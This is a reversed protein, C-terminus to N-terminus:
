APVGKSRSEDAKHPSPPITSEQELERELEEVVDGALVHEIEDADRDVHSPAIDAYRILYLEWLRHNRLIRRSERRGTETLKLTNPGIQSVLGLRSGRAILRDLHRRSWFRKAHVDAIPIAVEAALDEECEALARLLNQHAVRHSLSWRRYVGALVGRHPSFIMSFAFVVGTSIVIIAGTPLRPLLASLVSGMWGSFAGIGGAIVTMLLLSDTWFRAAAAPIILLAVIMILGVAQLGTVTTLVVLGMMLVDIWFVPRGMSSAFTQDFCVLRFEKFMVACCAIVAFATGGILMADRHLMAAAKGYIFSQLGSEGGTNMQQIISFLVMGIGFFVSLVIGIAADERIRSVRRMGIVALVGLTGSVAAGFLLWGLNKHGVVMFAIAIGPLTAHSLADGLMARKRLYAFTGIVGAAAGLLTAGIVVIRTNYDRLTLARFIKDWSPFSVSNDTIGGSALMGSVPVGSAIVSSFGVRHGDAADAIPTCGLLAVWVAAWVM